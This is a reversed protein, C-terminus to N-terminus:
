KPLQVSFTTWGDSSEIDIRGNYKEVMTNVITLGQGRLTGDKNSKTSYGAEFIKDMEEAPITSGTNSVEFVYQTAKEECTVHIRRNEVPMENTADIANDILNSLLKILDITKIGNFSDNSSQFNIDISHSQAALLKTQFLVYLAPNKAEIPMAYVMQAEKRLSDSYELAEQNKELKLLGNIVQIHNAYDHRVSRVSNLLSTLESRYAEETDGVQQDIEHHYWKQILWFTALILFAFAGSFIFSSISQKIVTESIRELMKTEIDMALFGIVNGQANKMPAGVSIYNGYTPDEIIGTFYSEGDYAQAMQERPVICPMGIDYYDNSDLPFGVIMVKPQTNAVEFSLTYVHLAGTHETAELLSKRIKWYDDNREPNELFRQYSEIDISQAISTAMELTNKAISVEVAKKTSYYSVLINILTLSFLIAIAVIIIIKTKQTTKIIGVGIM